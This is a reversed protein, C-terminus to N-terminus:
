INAASMGDPAAGANNLLIIIMVACIGAVVGVGVVPMRWDVGAALILSTTGAVAVKGVDGSFNYTGLAIRRGEAPYARSIISSSLPHQFSAGAGAFLLALLIVIFGPAFGLWIYSIGACATGFAQALVPLLVYLLDTLGDHLTHAGCCIALASRSNKNENRM